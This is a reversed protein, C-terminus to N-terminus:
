WLLLLINRCTNKSQNKSRTSRRISGSIKPLVMSPVAVRTEPTLFILRHLTMCSWPVRPISTAFFLAQFFVAFEEEDYDLLVM